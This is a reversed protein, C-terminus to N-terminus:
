SVHVDSVNPAPGFGFKPWGVVSTMPTPPGCIQKKKALADFLNDTNMTTIADGAILTADTNADALERTLALTSAKLDVLWDRTAAPLAEYIASSTEATFSRERERM